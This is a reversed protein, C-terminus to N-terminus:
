KGPTQTGVQHTKGGLGLKAIDDLFRMDAEGIGVCHIEVHRFLNLRALDDLLHERRVYPGFYHLQDADPQAVRSEPDGIPDEGYNKDRADWDDWTPDGDSLVFITDAGELMAKPDIYEESEALGKGRVQFARRLGGHLNTKGRLTGDPRETTPPGPAIADLEKIVKQVNNKSAETMGPTSDILGAVDGFYVVAFEKDKDLRQLSIKLHERALDFRNNVREWPIDDVTPIEDKKKKKPKPDDGTTPGRKPKIEIDIPKCMSDSMDIVYVIRKGTAELGFFSPRTVTNGGSNPRPPGGSEGRSRIKNIWPASELYLQQSSFTQGLYRALNLAAVDPLKNEPDLLHAYAEATTQFDDDGMAAKQSFLAAGMEGVLVAKEEDKRPLELCLSQIAQLVSPSRADALARLAAGRLVADARTDTIVAMLEDPGRFRGVFTLARYWLYADAEKDNALRWDDWRQVFEETNFYTACIGAILYRVQEKPEEPREYSNALVDLARPDRTQAFKVRGRTHMILPIRSLYDEYQAKAREFEDAASPDATRADASGPAVVAASALVTTAIAVVLLNVPLSAAPKTIRM